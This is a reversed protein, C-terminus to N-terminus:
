FCGKETFDFAIGAKCNFLVELFIDHEEATLDSGVKLKKICEETLQSGQKIDSFNPILWGAYAGGPKYYEKSIAEMRWNGKEGPRLGGEHLHSVPQVKDAKEKYLTM